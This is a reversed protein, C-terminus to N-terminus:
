VNNVCPLKFDFTPFPNRNDSIVTGSLGRKKLDYVAQDRSIGSFDAQAGLNMDAVVILLM